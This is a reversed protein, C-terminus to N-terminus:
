DLWRRVQLLLENDLCLTEDDLREIGIVGAISSLSLVLRAARLEDITVPVLETRWGHDLAADLLRRRTIGPLLDDSAPPTRLVGNETIVAINGRSTELAYETETSSGAWDHPAIESGPASTFLPLEAGTELSALWSRDAWKHRWNGTRGPYRYVALRDPRPGAPIVEILTPSKDPRLTLRVRLREATDAVAAAVRCALDEPLRLGYVELGSAALRSLHDSLGIVTGDVALMTEYLGGRPEVRDPCGAVPEALRAGGLGLLPAAKALCERWEAMPVSDATIGGGVGLEIQDGTIEFARIAVSFELRGGPGDTTDASGPGRAALYGIAGTFIGRGAPELEGILELARIKPAGTVSGPPFTARLLASDTVESRLRGTVESVLHWVGPAPRVALLESVDVSGPVCVRALDNRMLDVIMVNEARDKASHLLEQAAPDRAAPDQVAPEATDPARAVGASRPRTGKIPGTRVQEGRRDLFLEPSFSVVSREPTQLLAAYDATFAEIGAAFLQVPSGTLRAQARACVNVQFLEGARIASIAHEVAALHENRGTTALEDISLPDARVPRPRHAIVEILAALDSLDGVPRGISELWWRGTPDSRLVRDFLGFWSTADFGFWGFWGGGFAGSSDADLRAPRDLLEFGADRCTEAPEWGILVSGDAWRGALCVLSATDLEAAADLALLLPGPGLDLDLRRATLEAM